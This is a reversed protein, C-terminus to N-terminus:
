FLMRFRRGWAYTYLISDACDSHGDFRVSLSHCPTDHRETNGEAMLNMENIKEAYKGHLMRLASTMHLRKQKNFENNLPLAENFQIPFQTYKHHSFVLPLSSCFLLFFCRFVHTLEQEFSACKRKSNKKKKWKAAVKSQLLINTPEFLFNMM